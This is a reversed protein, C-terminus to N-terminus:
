SATSGNVFVGYGSEPHDINSKRVILSFGEPHELDEGPNFQEVTQTNMKKELFLVDEDKEPNYESKHYIPKPYPVKGGIKIVHSFM